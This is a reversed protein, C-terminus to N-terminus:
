ESFNEMNMEKLVNGAIKTIYILAIILIFLGIVLMPYSIFGTPEPGIILGTLHKTAYGFYVLSGNYILIGSTAALYPRFSVKTISLAYNLLAFPLPTLHLLFM